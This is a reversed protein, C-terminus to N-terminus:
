IFLDTNIPLFELSKKRRYSDFKSKGFIRVLNQIYQKKASLDHFLVTVTDAVNFLEVIIDRDTIDLSHGMILLDINYSREMAYKEIWCLYEADTEYLAKQYYKKFRLFSTDIKDSEDYEDANDANVGLVINGNVSGHLHFVSNSYYLKEYTNTYNLTVIAQIHRLAKCQCLRSRTADETAMMSLPEEVFSILYLKLAKSLELLEDYLDCIIKEANVTKLDSGVPYEILCEPDVVFKGPIDSTRGDKFVIGLSQNTFFPFSKIIYKEFASPFAQESFKETINPLVEKFCRLVVAIEREFDIWGVDKNFSKHLYSFWRNKKTLRIIECITNESLDTNDYIVQHERYCETIFSDNKQLSESSFVDGITRISDNYNRILFDVTHLFNSYKTPFKYYLDFGNGVLLVNM